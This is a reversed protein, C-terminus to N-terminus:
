TTSCLIGAGWNESMCVRQREEGVKAEQQWRHPQQRTIGLDPYHVITEDHSLQPNHAKTNM